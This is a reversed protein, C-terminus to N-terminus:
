KRFIMVVCVKIFYSLGMAKKIWHNDKTHMFSKKNKQKIETIWRISCLTNTPPRPIISTSSAADTRFHM